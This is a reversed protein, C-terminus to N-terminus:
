EHNICEQNNSLELMKSAKILAERIEQYSRKRYPIKSQICNNESLNGRMRIAVQKIFAPSFYKKQKM